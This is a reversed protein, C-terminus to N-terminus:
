LSTMCVDDPAPRYLIARAIDDVHEGFGYMSHIVGFCPFITAIRIQAIDIRRFIVIVKNYSNVRDALCRFPVARRETVTEVVTKVTFHM